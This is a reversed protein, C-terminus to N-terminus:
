ERRITGKRMGADHKHGRAGALQKIGDVFGVKLGFYAERHKGV